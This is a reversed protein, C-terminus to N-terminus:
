LHFLSVIRVSCVMDASMVCVHFCTAASAIQYVSDMTTVYSMLPRAHISVQLSLCHAPNCM